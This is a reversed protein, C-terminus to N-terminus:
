RKYSDMMADLTKKINKSLAIKMHMKEAIMLPQSTKPNVGRRPKKYFIRLTGIGPLIVNNGSMIEEIVIDLFSEIIMRSQLFTLGNLHRLRAILYRKNITM